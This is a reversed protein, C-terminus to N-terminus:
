LKDFTIGGHNGCIFETPMGGEHILNYIILPEDNIFCDCQFTDGVSLKSNISEEVVFNNEGLNRIIVCRNPSWCLRIKDGQVISSTTLHKKNIFASNSEDCIQEEIFKTYDKYGALRALLDLTFQSPQTSKGEKLYGWFRKLTTSSIPTHTLSFVQESLFNFDRPTKMERGICVEVRARLRTYEENPM